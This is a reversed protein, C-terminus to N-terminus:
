QLNNAASNNAAQSVQEFASFITELDNEHVGMGTDKVSFSLFDTCASDTWTQVMSPKTSSKKINDKTVSAVKLTISGSNTFKVANSLLNVLIQKVKTKDGTFKKPVNPLEYKNYQIAPKKNLLPSVVESCENLLEKMKIRETLLKM